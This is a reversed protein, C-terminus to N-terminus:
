RLYLDFLRNKIEQMTYIVNWRSNTSWTIARFFDQDNEILESLFPTLDKGTLLSNYYLDRNKALVVTIALMLLKNIPTRNENRYNPKVKRFAYGGFLRFADELSREYVEIYTTLDKKTNMSEVYGDLSDDMNGNYQGIPNEVTYQDYFYMFRLAVEQADMRTDRVSGSTAKKFADSKIMKLLTERLLPRSLCNRIEQNNLPKGGTNLRRFLDYKLKAPSRYDIVFCMIQTQYFRRISLLSLVENLQSFRKGNCEKLYELNTLVLQDKVFARITSLRQLGDVITLTGDSYQSLYVSPLPLGLFISEILKSQRTKDWVFNRQFSPELEIDGTDMLEVLQKLSFPKNEVFIDDPSYGPQRVSEDATSEAEFGSANSEMWEETLGLLREDVVEHSEKFQSYDVLHFIGNRDLELPIQVAGNEKDVSSIFMGDGIKYPYYERELDSGIPTLRIIM